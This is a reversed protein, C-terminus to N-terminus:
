MRELLCSNTVRLTQPPVLLSRSVAPERGEVVSLTPIVVLFALVFAFAGYGRFREVGGIRSYFGHAKGLGNEGDCCQSKEGRWSKGLFAKAREIRCLRGADGNRLDDFSVNDCSMWTRVIM